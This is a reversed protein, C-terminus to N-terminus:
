CCTQKLLFTIVEPPIYIGQFDFVMKFIAGQFQQNYFGVFVITKEWLSNIIYHDKSGLPIHYHYKGVSQLPIGKM